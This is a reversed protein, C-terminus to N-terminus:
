GDVGAVRVLAEDCRTVYFTMGAEVGAARGDNLLSRAAVLDSPRGRRILLRAWELSTLLLCSRAGMREDAAVAAVFHAEADDWRGMTAALMMLYGHVSGWIDAPLGAIATRDRLPWLDEYLLAARAEDRLECCVVSTLAMGITWNADRPIDAFGRAALSEFVPRAEDLKGLDRLLYLLGCTWAPVLPYQEVMARLLPELAELGGRARALALVQVGYMQMVTESGLPSGIRLAEEALTQADDLRCEMLAVAATHVTKIWLWEPQRLRDAIEASRALHARFGVGDGLEADCIMLWMTATFEHFQNGSEQSLELIEMAKARRELSNEPVWEGWLACGLVFVSVDLDAVEPLMEIAASTLSRRREGETSSFYLEAALRALVMARVKSPGPALWALCEEFLAVLEHDVRGAESWGRSGAIVLAADALLEPMGSRRADAVADLSM